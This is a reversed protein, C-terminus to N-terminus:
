KLITVLLTVVAILISLVALTIAVFSLRRSQKSENLSVSISQFKQEKYASYGEETLTMLQSEEDFTVLGLWTLEHMWLEIHAISVTWNYDYTSRKDLWDMIAKYDVSDKGFLYKNMVLCDLVRSIIHYKVREKTLGHRERTLMDKLSDNDM